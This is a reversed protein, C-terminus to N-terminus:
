EFRLAEVARIRMAYTAPYLSGAVGTFLALVVVILMVIPQISADVYGDLAPVHKL